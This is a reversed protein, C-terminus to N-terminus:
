MEASHGKQNFSTFIDDNLYYAYVCMKQLKLRADSVLCFQLETELVLRRLEDENCAPVEMFESLDISIDHEMREKLWEKGKLYYEKPKSWFKKYEKLIKPHYKKLNEAQLRIREQNQEWFDHYGGLHLLSVSDYSLRELHLPVCEEICDVCCLQFGIVPFQEYETGLQQKWFQAEEVSLIKSGQIALYQVWNEMRDEKSASLIDCLQNLLVLQFHRQKCKGYRLDFIPPSKVCCDGGLAVNLNCCIVMYTLFAPQLKSPISPQNM